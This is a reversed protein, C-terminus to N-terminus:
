KNEKTDQSDWVGISFKMSDTCVNDITYGLDRLKKLLADKVLETCELKIVTSYKGEDAMTKIADQVRAFLVWSKKMEKKADIAKYPFIDTHRTFDPGAIKDNIETWSVTINGSSDKKIKYGNSELIEGLEELNAKDFIEDIIFTYDTYGLQARCKIKESIYNYLYTKAMNNRVARNRPIFAPDFEWNIIESENKVLSKIIEDFNLEKKMEEKAKAINLGM